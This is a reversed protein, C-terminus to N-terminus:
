TTGRVGEAFVQHNRWHVLSPGKEPYGRTKTPPMGQHQLSWGQASSADENDLVFPGRSRKNSIGKFVRAGHHDTKVTIASLRSGNKIARADLSHDEIEMQLTTGAVHQGM